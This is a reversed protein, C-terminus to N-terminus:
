SDSRSVGNEATHRRGLNKSNQWGSVLPPLLALFGHPKAIRLRPEPRVSPHLPTARRWSPTFPGSLPKGYTQLDYPSSHTLSWTTVDTLVALFEDATLTGWIWPSPASGAIAAATTRELDSMFNVVSTAGTRSDGEPRSLACLSVISTRKEIPRVCRPLRPLDATFFNSLVRAM